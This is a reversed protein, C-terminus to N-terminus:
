QASLRYHCFQSRDLHHNGYQGNALTVAGNQLTIDLGAEFLVNDGARFLFVPAFDALTFASHQGAVKGFQVEADGTMTFNHTALASSLVPAVPQVPAKAEAKQEAEAVTKQTQGVEQQLQTIKHRMQEATEAKQQAVSAAKQTAGVQKELEQIKQQDQEHVKQDEEHTQELKQVKEGLQQVADKLAKFDEDSVEAAARSPMTAIGVVCGTLLVRLIRSRIKM